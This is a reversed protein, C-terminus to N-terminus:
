ELDGGKEPPPLGLEWPYKDRPKKPKRKRDEPEAFRSKRKFQQRRLVSPSPYEEFMGREGLWPRGERSTAGSPQITIVRKDQKIAHSYEKFLAYKPLVPLVIIVGLEVHDIMEKYDKWHDFVRCGKMSLLHFAERDTPTQNLHYFAIFQPDCRFFMSKFKNFQREVVEGGHSVLAVCCRSDVAYLEMRSLEVM